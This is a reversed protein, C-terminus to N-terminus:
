APVVEFELKATVEPHLRVTVQHVGITKIPAALEIRRKDIEPGGANKVAEAIDAVTVSGFLRGSEGARTPLKISLSELRGKVEQAHGLDRIERAHRARKIQEVQKEGGRTWKIAYGRPILYNRGYGDKVEVIDGPAGLGSVEQTLILKM